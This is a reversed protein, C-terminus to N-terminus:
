ARPEKGGRMKKVTSFRFLIRGTEVFREKAKTLLVDDCAAPLQGDSLKHTSSRAILSPAAYTSSRASHIFSPLFVPGPSIGPGYINM